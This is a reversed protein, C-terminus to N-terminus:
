RTISLGTAPSEWTQDATHKLFGHLSLTMARQTPHSDLNNPHDTPTLNKTIEQKKKNKRTKKKKKSFENTTRWCATFEGDAVEGIAQIEAEEVAARPSALCKM